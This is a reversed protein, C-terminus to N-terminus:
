CLYSFFVGPVKGEKRGISRYHYGLERLTEQYEVQSVGSQLRDVLRTEDPDNTAPIGEPLHRPRQLGLEDRRKQKAITSQVPYLNRLAAVKTGYEGIMEKSSNQPELKRNRSQLSKLSSENAPREVAREPVTAPGNGTFRISQRLFLVFSRLLLKRM